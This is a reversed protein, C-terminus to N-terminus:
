VKFLRDVTQLATVVLRTKMLTRAKGVVTLISLHSIVGYAESDATPTFKLNSSLAVGVCLRAFVSIRHGEASLITVSDM